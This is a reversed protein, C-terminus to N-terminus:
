GKLPMFAKPDEQPPYYLICFGRLGLFVFFIRFFYCFGGDRTPGLFVFFIVSFSLFAVFHYNEYKTM